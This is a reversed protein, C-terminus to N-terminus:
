VVALHAKTRRTMKVVDEVVASATALSGAGPGMLVVQGVLDGEVCLANQVGDVFYLPDDASLATPGVSARIPQGENDLELCVLHKWKRDAEKARTIEGPTIDRIGVRPVAAWDVEVGLLCRTLIQLKYYADFGDVDMAPDAEAYGLVQADHLADEFAQDTKWMQTLIYNCTGNVIGRLKRIRNAAFYTQLTHLAPIGGLVSAEYHLQLGLVRAKERLEDGYLAILQKNATVVHKGHTLAALVAEYAPQLGGMVEIVIDVEPDTCVKRWDTCLRTTDVFTNRPLSLNRVAIRHLLLRAECAREIPARNTVLAQAVGGGVVGCGLLGIRVDNDMQARM